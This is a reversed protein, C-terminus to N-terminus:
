CAYYNRSCGEVKEKLAQHRLFGDGTWQEIRATRSIMEISISPISNTIFYKTNCRWDQLIIITYFSSTLWQKQKLSQWSFWGPKSKFVAEGNSVYREENRALIFPVTRELYYEVSYKKLTASALESGLPSYVLGAGASIALLAAANGMVKDMLTTRDGDKKYKLIYELLPALVNQDSKFICEDGRYIRLTDSSCKFDAFLPRMQDTMLNRDDGLIVTLLLIEDARKTPRNGFNIRGQMEGFFLIVPKRPTEGDNIIVM